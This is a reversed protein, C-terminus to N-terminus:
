FYSFVSQDQKDSYTQLFGAQYLLCPVTPFQSEVANEKKIKKYVWWFRFVSSWLKIMCTAAHNTISFFLFLFSLFLLTSLQIASTSHSHTTTSDLPSVNYRCVQPRFCASLFSVPLEVSGFLCLLSLLFLSVFSFLLIPGISPGQLLSSLGLFLGSLAFFLGAVSIDARHSPCEAAGGWWPTPSHSLGAEGRATGLCVRLDSIKAGRVFTKHKRWSWRSLLM